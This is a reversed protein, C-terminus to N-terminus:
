DYPKRALCHGISFDIKTGDTRIIWFCQQSFQPVDAPPVGVEFGAIGSGVKEDYEDHRTLLAALEVADADSVRDGVPYRNLMEKFFATADGAKTFTRTPLTITRSKGM